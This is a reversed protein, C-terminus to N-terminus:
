AHRVEVRYVNPSTVGHSLDAHMQSIVLVKPVQEAVLSDLVPRNAREAEGTLDLERDLDVDSLGALYADTAAHVAEAYAKLATLDVMRFPRCGSRTARFWQHGMLDIASEFLNHWTFVQERAGFFPIAHRRADVDQVNAAVAHPSHRNKALPEQFAFDGRM